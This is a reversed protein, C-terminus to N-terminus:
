DGNFFSVSFMLDQMYVTPTRPAGNAAICGSGIQSFGSPIQSMDFFFM